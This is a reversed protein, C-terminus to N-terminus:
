RRASTRSRRFTPRSAAATGPGHCQACAFQVFDHAGAAVLPGSRAPRSLRPVRREPAPSPSRTHGIQATGAASTVAGVAVVFCRRRGDDGGPATGAGGANACSASRGLAWSRGYNGSRLPPDSGQRRGGHHSLIRDHSRFRGERTRITSSWATTRAPSRSRGRVRPCSRARRPPARVSCLRNGAGRRDGGSTTSSSTVIGPSFPISAIGFSRSTQRLEFITM